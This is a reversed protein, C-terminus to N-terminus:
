NGPLQDFADELTVTAPHSAPIIGSGVPVVLAPNAGPSAPIVFPTFNVTYIDVTVTYTDFALVRGQLNNIEFMGYARSVRFSIIEGLVYTHPMSFTAVANVANTIGTLYRLAPVFNASNQNQEIM